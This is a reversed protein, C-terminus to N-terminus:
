GATRLGSQSLMGGRKLVSTRELVQGDAADAWGPWTLLTKKAAMASARQSEWKAMLQQKVSKLREKEKQLTHM